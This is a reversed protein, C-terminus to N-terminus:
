RLWFSILKNKKLDVHVIYKMVKVKNSIYYFFNSSIYAGSGDFKYGNKLDCIFTDEILKYTLM